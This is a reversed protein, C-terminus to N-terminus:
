FKLLRNAVANQYTPVEWGLASFIGQIKLDIMKQETLKKDVTYSETFWKPFEYADAPLAISKMGEPNPKLYFIIVKDGSKILKAGEEHLQVLSNYNMAARVHGPVNQPNGNVSLKGKAPKGARQWAAFFADLNNVQKAVGMSFIDGDKGLLDKRRQNVFAEITPYDKGDLLLAMLDKLFQQIIKPTDAKKIESGQSKLKDVASGELDVVRLIYKKKAQFIGRIAVVERGAKILGDYTPQCNFSQRMFEPFSDNTLRATEDAAAIAEEKSGAHTKFYCSDTDGYIITSGGAIYVHVPKGDDDIETQKELRMPTQPELLSHITEMMHTTIMRGCATVSAGLEKRGFRFYASLLAGYTSNLQIKKTLQLLDYHEVMKEAHQIEEWAEKTFIVDGDRVLEGSRIKNDLESALM